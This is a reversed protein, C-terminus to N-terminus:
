LYTVANNEERCVRFAVLNLQMVQFNSFNLGLGAPRGVLNSSVISAGVTRRFELWLCDDDMMAEATGDFSEELYGLLDM